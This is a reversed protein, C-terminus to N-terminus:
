PHGASFQLYWRSNYLSFTNILIHIIHTTQCKGDMSPKDTMMPANTSMLTALTDCHVQNINQM